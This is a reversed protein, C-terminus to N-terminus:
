QVDNFLMVIGLDTVENPSPQKKPHTDSSLMETASPFVTYWLLSLQRILVAVPLIIALQLFLLMGTSPETVENPLSQKWPYEDSLLMEIGMDTVENPSPQREQHADSSLMETASPFGM